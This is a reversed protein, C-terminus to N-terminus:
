SFLPRKFFYPCVRKWLATDGDCLARVGGSVLAHVECDCLSDVTLHTFVLARPGSHHVLSKIIGLVGVPHRNCAQVSLMVRGKDTYRLM